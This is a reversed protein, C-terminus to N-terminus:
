GRSVLVDQRAGAAAAHLVAEHEWGPRWRPMYRLRGGRFQKRDGLAVGDILGRKGQEGKAQSGLCVQGSAAEVVVRDDPHSIAGKRPTAALM